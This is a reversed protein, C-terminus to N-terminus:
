WALNLPFGYSHKLLWGLVKTWYVELFYCWFTVIKLIKFSRPKLNKLGKWTFHCFTMGLHTVHLLSCVVSIRWLGFVFKQWILQNELATSVVFLLSMLDKTLKLKWYMELSILEGKRHLFSFWPSLWLKKWRAIFLRFHEQFHFVFYKRILSM